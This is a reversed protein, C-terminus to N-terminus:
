RSIGDGEDAVVARVEAPTVVAVDGAITRKLAATAAGWELAEPVSGDQLRRALFGGVFADGTGVADHTETPFSEQEHVSGEHLATAGHEGRTVVVTEHDFENRFETAVKTADGTLDFLTEADRRAVVLVDVGPLLQTLTERAQEPSWLKARYNVDLVTTTDADRAVALLDATTEALTGSLAPTIGSVYFVEADRVRQVALDDATATRVAAGERDYVVNTGRPEGGDELYYTGVRGDDSWAVAPDVGHSRVDTAVRRGLPSDPLKSLWASDVGLHAGAAAVNSEAGGVHLDLSDATQLRDGDPAALRLMSEGFTVLDTM